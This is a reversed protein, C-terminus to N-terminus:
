ASMPSRRLGGATWIFAVLGINIAIRTVGECFPLSSYFPRSPEEKKAQKQERQMEQMSRMGAFMQNIDRQEAQRSSPQVPLEVIEDDAPAVPTAEKAPEPAVEEAPAEDAQFVEDAVNDLIDDANIDSM